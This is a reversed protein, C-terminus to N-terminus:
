QKNVNNLFKINGTNIIKRKYNSLHKIVNDYGNIVVGGGLDICPTGKSGIPLEKWSSVKIIEVEIKENELFKEVM